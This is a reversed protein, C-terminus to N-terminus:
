KCPMLSSTHRWTLATSSALDAASAAAESADASAAAAFTASAAVAGAAAAAFALLVNGSFRLAAATSPGAEFLCHLAAPLPAAGSAAGGCLADSLYM